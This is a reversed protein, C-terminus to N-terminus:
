MADEPPTENNQESEPGFRMNDWLQQAQKSFNPVAAYPSNGRGLLHNAKWFRVLTRTLHVNRAAKALAEFPVRENTDLAEAARDYTAKDVRIKTRGYKEVLDYDGGFSELDYTPRNVGVYKGRPANLPSLGAEAAQESLAVLADLSFEDDPQPGSLDAPRSSQASQVVAPEQQLAEMLEAVLPGNVTADARLMQALVQMVRPSIQGMAAGTDCEALPQKPPAQLAGGNKRMLSKFPKVRM